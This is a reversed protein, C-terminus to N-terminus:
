GQDPGPRVSLLASSRAPRLQGLRQLWQDIGEFRQQAFVGGPREVRAIVADDAEGQVVGGVGGDGVSTITSAHHVLMYGDGGGRGAYAMFLGTRGIVPWGSRCPGMLSHSRSSIGVQVPPELLGADSLGAHAPLLVLGESLHDIHKWTSNWSLSPESQSGRLTV